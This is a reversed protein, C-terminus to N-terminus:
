PSLVYKDLLEVTSNHSNQIQSSAHIVHHMEAVDWVQVRLLQQRQHRNRLVAAERSRRGDEVHPLGGEAPDKLTHFPHEPNLDERPIRASQLDRGGATLHNGYCLPHQVIQLEREAIDSFDGSFLAALNDYGRKAREAEARKWPNDSLKPLAALVHEDLNTVAAIGLNEIVHRATNRIETHHVHAAQRVRDVANADALIRQIDRQRPAM